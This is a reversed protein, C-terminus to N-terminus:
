RVRDPVIVGERRMVFANGASKISGPARWGFDLSRRRDCPRASLYAHSLHHCLTTKRAMWAAPFARCSREFPSPLASDHAEAYFGTENCSGTERLKVRQVPLQFSGCRGDHERGKAACKRRLGGSHCFNIERSVIYEDIPWSFLCELCPGGEPVRLFDGKDKALSLDTFAARFPFHEPDSTDGGQSNNAM